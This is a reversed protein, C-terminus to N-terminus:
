LLSLKRWKKEKYLALTDDVSVFHGDLRRYQEDKSFPSDDVYRKQEPHEHM